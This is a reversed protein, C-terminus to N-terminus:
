CQLEGYDYKKFGDITNVYMTVGGITNNTYGSANRLIVLIRSKDPGCIGQKFQIRSYAPWVFGM